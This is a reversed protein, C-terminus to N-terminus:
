QMQGCVQFLYAPLSCGCTKARSGSKECFFLRKILLKGDEAQYWQLGVKQGQDSHLSWFRETLAFPPNICCVYHPTSTSWVVSLLISPSFTAQLCSAEEIIGLFILYWVQKQGPTYWSQDYSVDTWTLCISTM